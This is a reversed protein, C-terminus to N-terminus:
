YVGPKLDLYLKVFTVSNALQLHAANCKNVYVRTDWGFIM